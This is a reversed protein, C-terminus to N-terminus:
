FSVKATFGIMARDLNFNDFVKFGEIFASEFDDYLINLEVGSTIFPYPRVDFGVRVLFKSSGISTSEWNQMDTTWITGIGFYPDFFLLPARVVALATGVFRYPGSSMRGFFLVDSSMGFVMGPYYGIRLGNILRDNKTDSDLLRDVYAEDDFITSYMSVFGIDMINFAGLPYAICVLLLLVCVTRLKIM